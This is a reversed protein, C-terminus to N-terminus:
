TNDECTRFYFDRKPIKTLKGDCYIYVPIMMIDCSWQVATAWIALREEGNWSRQGLSPGPETSRPELTMVFTALVFNFIMAEPVGARPKLNFTIRRRCQNDM